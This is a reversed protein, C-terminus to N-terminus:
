AKEKRQISIEQHTPYPFPEGATYIRMLSGQTAEILDSQLIEIDPSIFLKTEYAINNTAETQSNAGLAKLSLRCPTDIQKVVWDLKTEGNVKIKEHRKITVRDAYMKEITRRHRAYNIM